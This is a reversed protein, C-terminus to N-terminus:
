VAAFHLGKNAFIYLFGQVIKTSWFNHGNTVATEILLLNNKM